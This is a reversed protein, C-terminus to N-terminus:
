RTGSGGSGRTDSGRTDSGRTDSGRTDSGRTDSGRTDSGAPKRERFGRRIENGDNRVISSRNHRGMWNLLKKLDIPEVTNDVALRELKRMGDNVSAELGTGTTGIVLYRTTPDIKGIINGEEDTQAVVRGGNNEIMRVLRLRDSKGDGDLDFLGALAIPVRYGPDWTPTVINDGKKIPNIFDEETIRAVATHAGTISIVQIKAKEDNLQFNNVTNDYVAFTMNSRLGDAQGINLFVSDGAVRLVTGDALDFNERTLEDIRIKRKKYRDDLDTYSVKLEGIQGKLDRREDTFSATLQDLQSKNQQLATRLMSENEKYLKKTEALEIKKAELEANTEDLTKQITDVKNLFDDRDQKNQQREVELANHKDSLVSILNAVLGSWTLEAAQDDETRAIFQQIDADYIRKINELNNSVNSISAQQTSSLASDNSLRSVSSIQTDVEALSEGLNGVLAKLVSSEIEHAERIKKEVTLDAQAKAMGESNEAAKSWGFFTFGGLLLVVVVLSIVAILYGQNDRAAM